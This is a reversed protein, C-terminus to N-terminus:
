SASPVASEGCDAEGPAGSQGTQPASPPLPLPWPQAGSRAGASRSSRDPASRARSRSCTGGRELPRRRQERGQRRGPAKSASSRVTAGPQAARGSDGLEGLGVEGVAGREVRAVARAADGAELLQQLGAGREADLEDDALHAQAGEIQRGCASRASRGIRAGPERRQEAQAPLDDHESCGDAM